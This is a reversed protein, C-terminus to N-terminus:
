LIIESSGSGETDSDDSLSLLVKLSGDFNRVKNLSPLVVSFTINKIEGSSAKYAIVYVYSTKTKQKKGVGSLGGLFMGAPGFLLGGALGRGVVSKSREEIEKETSLVTGQINELPIKFTSVASPKRIKGGMEEIIFYEDDFTLVIPALSNKLTLGDLFQVIVKM